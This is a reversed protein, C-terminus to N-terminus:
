RRRLRLRLAQPEPKAAPRSTSGRGRTAGEGAMEGGRPITTVTGPHETKPYLDDFM